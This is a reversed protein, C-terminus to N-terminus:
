IHCSRVFGTSIAEQFHMTQCSLHKKKNKSSTLTTNVVVSINDGILESTPEVYLSLYHLKCRMEVILNIGIHVAIMEYGFTFTQVTCQRQLFWVLPM